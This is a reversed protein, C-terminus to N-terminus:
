AEVERRDYDICGVDDNVTPRREHVLAFRCEGGHNFQCDKSECEFCLRKMYMVKATQDTRDVGDGYLLHAAGKSHRQDFWHWITGRDTGSPFDLFGEETTETNPDISVDGFQDWLDELEKDRELLTDIEELGYRIADFDACSINDRNYLRYSIDFAKKKAETM